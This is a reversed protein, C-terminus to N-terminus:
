GLNQSQRRRRFFGVGSMGALGTALLTLTVPEPVASVPTCNAPTNGPGAGTWCETTEGSIADYGRFVIDSTAPDWTGGSIQFTFTVWDLPNSTDTSCPNQYLNPPSGPLEAATACGSAIGNTLASKPGPTDTKIDVGFNVKGGNQFNWNGPTDGPRAPGSVNGSGSVLSIGPPLNYIGLADFVTGARSGNQGSMNWIRLTVNSGVVTVEVAACTKFQDGGCVNYSRTGDAMAPTTQVSILGGLLALALCTKQM